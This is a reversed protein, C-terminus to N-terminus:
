DAKPPLPPNNATGGDLREARQRQRKPRRKRGKFWTVDAEQVRELLSMCEVPHASKYICLHMEM